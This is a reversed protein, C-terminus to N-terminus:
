SANSPVGGATSMGARLGLSWASAEAFAGGALFLLSFALIRAAYM